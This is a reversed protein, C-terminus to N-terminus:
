LGVKEQSDASFGLDELLRETGAEPSFLSKWRRFSREVAAPDDKGACQVVRALDEADGTRAVWPHGPGVVEPLAGSDSVVVPIRASMSETVVLGFSEAFVSPCVLCDIREFFEAPEVWGTRVVLDGLDALATEVKDRSKDDVFRSEGGMVLQYRGPSERDLIKVAQALVDVGKGTSPRGLFGLRIPPQAQRTPEYKTNGSMDAAWNHLVRAGRVFSAMYESPVVTTAARFRGIRALLVQVGHPRQHLHVVRRRFGATAVAPLLGNCWLVGNRNRQGWSRLARMYELRSSSPLAVTDFGRTQAADLLGTPNQPGVVTVAIGFKTMAGAMALLMVEGGGIEGNNSALAIHPAQARASPPRLGPKM